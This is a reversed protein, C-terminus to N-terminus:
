LPTVCNQNGYGACLEYALAYDHSPCRAHVSRYASVCVGKDMCVCARGCVRVSIRMCACVCWGGQVVNPLCCVLVCVRMCARVCAGAGRAIRKAPPSDSRSRHASQQCQRSPRPTRTPGHEYQRHTLVYTQTYTCLHTYTRSYTRAHTHINTHIHICTLTPTRAHV